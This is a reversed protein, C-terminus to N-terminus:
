RRDGPAIRVSQREYSEFVLAFFLLQKRM